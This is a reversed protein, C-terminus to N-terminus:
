FAILYILVSITNTRRRRHSWYGPLNPAEVAAMRWRDSDLM